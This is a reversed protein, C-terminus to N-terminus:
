GTVNVNLGLNGKCIIVQPYPCIAGMGGTNPGQDGENLQKHDQAPPMLAVDEGDSFAL